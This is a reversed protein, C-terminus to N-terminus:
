DEERVEAADERVDVAVAAADAAAVAAVAAFSFAFLARELLSPLKLAESRWFSIKWFTALM